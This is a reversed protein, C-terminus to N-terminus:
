TYTHYADRNGQLKFAHKAASNSVRFIIRVFSIWKVLNQM